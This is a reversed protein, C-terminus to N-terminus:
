RTESRRMPMTDVLGTLRDADVPETSRLKEGGDKGVLVVAFGDDKVGYAARLEQAQLTAPARGGSLATVARPTVVFVPMDREALPDRNRTLRKLQEAVQPADRSPAFVIVPRAKWLYAELGAASAPASFAGALLTAAALSWPAITSM